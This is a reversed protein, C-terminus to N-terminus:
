NTNQTTIMKKPLVLIFDGRRNRSWSEEDHGVIAPQDKGFTRTYIRQGDVGSKMLLERLALARREGLSRNYEETGREDCHGEILLAFDTPRAKFAGIVQEIKSAEDSKVNAQDFEFYVTQDKFIARDLERDKWDGEPLDTGAVPGGAVGEGVTGTGVLPTTNLSEPTSRKTESGQNSPLATMRERPGRCGTTIFACALAVIVFTSNKM